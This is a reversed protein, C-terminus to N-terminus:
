VAKYSNLLSNERHEQELINEALLELDFDHLKSPPTNYFHHQSSHLFTVARHIHEELFIVPTIKWALEIIWWPLFMAAFLSVFEQSFSNLEESYFVETNRVYAAPVTSVMSTKYYDVIPGHLLEIAFVFSEAIKQAKLNNREFRPFRFLYRYQEYNKQKESLLPVIRLEIGLAKAAKLAAQSQKRFANKNDPIDIDFDLAYIAQGIHLILYFVKKETEFDISRMTTPHANDM